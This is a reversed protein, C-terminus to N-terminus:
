KVNSTKSNVASKTNYVARALLLDVTDQVSIDTPNNYIRKITKGDKTQEFVTMTYPKEAIVFTKSGYFITM